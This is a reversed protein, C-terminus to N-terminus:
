AVVEQEEGPPPPPPPMKVRLSVNGYNERDILVPAKRSLVYVDGPQATSCGTSAARVVIKGNPLWGVPHLNTARLDDPIQLKAFPAKFMGPDGAACDGPSLWAIANPQFPTLVYEFPFAGKDLTDLFPDPGISLSHLHWNRPGHRANYYLTRGDEDFRLSIILRAEEGRALLKPETGVNTALYLGYDGNEKLGTTAIHEGAPHYTVDDHRALFSIDTAKGGLSSRKMLRGEKTIWVVSTGTPRSWIAEENGKDTLRSTISGDKSLARDDVIVRDGGANWSPPIVNGMSLGSEERDILCSPPGGSPRYARLQNNEFLTIQGSGPTRGLGECQATTDVTEVPTPTESPEATSPADSAIADPPPEAREPTCGTAMAVILVVGGLRRM